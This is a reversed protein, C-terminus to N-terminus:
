YAIELTGDCHLGNCDAPVYRLALLQARVQQALDADSVPRVFRVDIARGSEDVDIRIRVPGALRARIADLDASNALAPPYNQSFLGGFSAENVAAPTATLTPTPTPAAISPSPLPTPLVTPAADPAVLAVSVRPPTHQRAARVSPAGGNPLAAARKAREAAPPSVTHPRFDRSVATPARTPVSAPRGASAAVVTPAARRRAPPRRREITTVFLAPGAVMESSLGIDRDDVLM